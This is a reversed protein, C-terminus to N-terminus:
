KYPYYGYMYYYLIPKKFTLSYVVDSPIIYRTNPFENDDVNIIYDLIAKNYDNPYDLSLNDDGKTYGISEYAKQWKEEKEETIDKNELLANWFVIWRALELQEDKYIVKKRARCFEEATCILFLTFEDEGILYSVAVNFLKSLFRLHSISPEATGKEWKVVTTRNVELFKAIDEQTKNNAKRLKKLRDGFINVM